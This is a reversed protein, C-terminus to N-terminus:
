YARPGHSRYTQTSKVASTIFVSRKM